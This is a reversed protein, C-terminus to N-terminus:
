WRTRLFVLFYCIIGLTMAVEGSEAETEIWAVKRESDLSVEGNVVIM